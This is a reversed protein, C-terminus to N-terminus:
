VACLPEASCSPCKILGNENCTSCSRFGDKESYLKHSGSCEDCLIFRYGGCVDCVGPEAAPLGEVFKKLEGIEHLQKIEEAGGIYRGGIFVRPLTLKDEGLIGQLEDLFGSDMSLDREDISVRFGKLISRVARCAEFTSRVVRLSTYYVVIRKDCGLLNISPTMPTTVTSDSSVSDANEPEPENENDPEPVQVHEHQHQHVPEPQVSETVPEAPQSPRGSWGRLVTTAVRVRHFISPKKAASTPVSASSVQPDPNDDTCLNHIDKFTSCSFNTSSQSASSSTNHIRGASKSWSRWM